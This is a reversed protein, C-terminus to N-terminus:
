QGRIFELPMPKPPTSGPTVCTEGNGKDIRLLGDVLTYYCSWRVGGDLSSLKIEGQSGLEWYLRLTAFYRYGFVGDDHFTIIRGSRDTPTWIGLLSAREEATASTGCGGLAAALSLSVLWRISAM